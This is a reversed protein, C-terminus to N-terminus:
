GNREAAEKTGNLAILLEIRKMAENVYALKITGYSKAPDKNRHGYYYLANKVFSPACARLMAMKFGDGNRNPGYAETAGMAIAHLPIEGPHFTVGGAKIVFDEGSRKIMARRDNGIFGRSSRALIEVTPGGFDWSDSYCVILM